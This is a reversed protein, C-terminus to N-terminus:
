YGPAIAFGILLDHNTLRRRLARLTQYSRASAITTNSLELFEIAIDLLQIVVYPFVM